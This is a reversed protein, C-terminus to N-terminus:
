YRIFPLDFPLEYKFRELLLAVGGIAAAVAIGGVTLFTAKRTM